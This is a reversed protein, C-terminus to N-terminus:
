VAKTTRKEWQEKYTGKFTYEEEWKMMGKLVVQFHVIPVVDFYFTEPTDPDLLQNFM